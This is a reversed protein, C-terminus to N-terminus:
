INFVICGKMEILFMLDCMFGKLNCILMCINVVKDSSM